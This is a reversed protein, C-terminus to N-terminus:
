EVVLAIVGTIIHDLIIDLINQMKWRVWRPHLIVIEEGEIATCHARLSPIPQSRGWKSLEFHNGPEM